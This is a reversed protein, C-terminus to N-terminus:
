KKAIVILKKLIFYFFFAGLLSMISTIPDRVCFFVFPYFVFIIVRNFKFNNSINNLVVRSNLRYLLFGIIPYFILSFYGFDAYLDGIYGFSVNHSDPVNVLYKKAFWSGLMTPKEPWLSRPYWFYTIFLSSKGYLHDNYEFHRFLINSMRIIGENSLYKSAIVYSVDTVNNSVENLKIQSNDDRFNRMLLSSVVILCGSVLLINAQKKLSKISLIYQIMFGFVSFLFYYRTGSLFFIFFIPLSTMFSYFVSKRKIFTFYYFFINPLVFGLGRFIMHGIDAGGANLRGYLFANLALSGEIVVFVTLLLIFLYISKSKLQEVNYVNLNQVNDRHNLDRKWNFFNFFINILSNSVVFFSIVSFTRDNLHVQTDSVAEGVIMYFFGLNWIVDLSFFSKFNILRSVFYFIYFYFLIKSLLMSDGGCFFPIIGLIVFVVINKM